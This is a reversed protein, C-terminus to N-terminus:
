KTEGKRADDIYAIFAVRRATCAIDMEMRAARAEKRAARAEYTTAHFGDWAADARVALSANDPSAASAIRATEYSAGARVTVEDYALAYGDARRWNDFAIAYAADATSSAEHLPNKM